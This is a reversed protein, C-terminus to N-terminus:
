VSYIRGNIIAFDFQEENQGIFISCEEQILVGKNQKLSFYPLDEHAGTEALKYMLAEFPSQKFYSSGNDSEQYTTM